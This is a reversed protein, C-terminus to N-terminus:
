DWSDRAVDSLLTTRGCTAAGRGCVRQRRHRVQIGLSRLRDRERPNSLRHDETIPSCTGTAPDLFLAASDGM